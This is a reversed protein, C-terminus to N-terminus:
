GWSASIHMFEGFLKAAQGMAMGMFQQQMGGGSSGGGSGSSGGGSGFMKLAQMAAASGMGGSTAPGGGGGGGGFFSQHAQVMNDEDVGQNQLHSANGSIHNMANSFM